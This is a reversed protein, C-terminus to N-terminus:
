RRQSPPAWALLRASLRSIAWYSISTYLIFLLAVLFMRDLYAFQQAYVIIYGLGSQAGLYEAGLVASWGAGLSLLITSRMAPFIAPLIVTRYLTWRSAGLSRANDIYIPPVNRVANVTGAFVIVAIGYAVFLVEGFFYTGFWFQFLPVMALLPLTRLFQLPWDFLRRTWRSWSVALGLLLGVAGGLALGLSLRGITDISHSLISLLAALYSREAGDAVASVGLGGQWYDSLTLFTKTFLVQWGAIMPEGPQAEATYVVSLIQWIGALAAFVMVSIWRDRRGRTTVTM